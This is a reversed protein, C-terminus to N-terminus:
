KNKREQSEMYELHTVVSNRLLTFEYVMLDRVKESTSYVQNYVMVTNYFDEETPEKSDKGETIAKLTDEHQQIKRHDVKLLSELKEIQQLYNDENITGINPYDKVIEDALGEIYGTKLFAATVKLRDEKAQMATIKMTRQAIRLAEKSKLASYYDTQVKAWAALLESESPKGSAILASYDKHILCQIFDTLPLKRIDTKLTISDKPM